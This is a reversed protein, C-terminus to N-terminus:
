QQMEALKEKIEKIKMDAYNKKKLGEGFFSNKNAEYTAEFEKLEEVLDEVKNVKKDHAEREYATLSETDVNALTEKAASVLMVTKEGLPSDETSESSVGLEALREKVEAIKESSYNKKKLGEGFLQNKNEEYMKKFEDLEKKLNEIKQQKREYEEREYPTLADLDIDASQSANNAIAEATKEVVQPSVVPKETQSAIAQIHDDEPGAIEALKEKIEAIKQESYNKKKLGEGLFKNKNAEYMEEYERLEARLVSIKEARRNREVDENSNSIVINDSAGTVPEEPTPAAVKNLSEESDLADDDMGFDMAGVIPSSMKLSDLGDFGDNTDEEAPQEVPEDAKNEALKDVSNFVLGNVDGVNSDEVRVDDLGSIFTDSTLDPETEKEEPVEAKVEPESQKEPEVPEVSEVPKVVEVLDVKDEPEDFGIVPDNFVVAPESKVTDEKVEKVTTDVVTESSVDEVTKGPAAKVTDNVSDGAIGTNIGAIMKVLRAKPHKMGCYDCVAFKGSVDMTLTKGCIDCQMAAM